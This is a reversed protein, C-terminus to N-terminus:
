FIWLLKTSIRQAIVIKLMTRKSHIKIISKKRKIKEKFISLVICIRCMSVEGKKNEKVIDGKYDLGSTKKYENYKKGYMIDMPSENKDIKDGTKALYIKGNEGKIIFHKRNELFSIKSCLFHLYGFCKRFSHASEAKM